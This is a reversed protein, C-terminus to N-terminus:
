VIVTSWVSEGPQDYSFLLSADQQRSNFFLEAVRLTEGTIKSVKVSFVWVDYVM